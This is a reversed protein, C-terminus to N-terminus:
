FSHTLGVGYVQRTGDAIYRKSAVDVYVGTRKSLAYNAGVSVVRQKKIGDVDASGWGAKLTTAGLAYTAGLTTVKAESGAASESVNYMGMLTLDAFGSRLGISTEKAGSSNKGVGLMARTTGDNYVVSAARTRDDAGTPKEPSFSLHMSVNSFKASDLFIGNALRGSGGGVPDASYNWHWLDWAPSAVRSFNGWADFAWDQSQIADVARGLRLAGIGSKLGVTTEGHWAPKSGAGELAGTDMDLRQVLKFTASLGSGLDETGAFQISSRKITGLNTVSAKDRFVGVDLTGSIAVSSQAMAAGGGLLLGTALLYPTCKSFKM